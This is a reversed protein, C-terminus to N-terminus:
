LIEDLATGYRVLGQTTQDVYRETEVLQSVPELDAVLMTGVEAIDELARRVGQAATLVGRLLVVVVPAIVLLLALNGIWWLAM